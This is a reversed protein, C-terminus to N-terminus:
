VSLEIKLLGSRPLAVICLGEMEDHVRLVEKFRDSTMVTTLSQRQKMNIAFLGRPGDAILASGDSQIALADLDRFTAENVSSAVAGSKTDITLFQRLGRARARNSSSIVGYLKGDGGFDLGDIETMAMDGILTARGTQPSIRYLRSITAARTVFVVSAYLSGDAAM